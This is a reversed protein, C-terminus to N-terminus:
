KKDVTHKNLIINKEDMVHKKHKHSYTGEVPALSYQTAIKEIVNTVDENTNGAVATRIAAELANHGAVLLNAIPGEYRKAPDASVIITTGVHSFYGDLHCGLDVKAIDDEKM